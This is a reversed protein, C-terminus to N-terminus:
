GWTVSSIMENPPPPHPSTIFLSLLSLIPTINIVNALVMCSFSCVGSFGAQRPYLGDSLCCHMLLEKKEGLQQLWMPSFFFSFLDCNNWIKKYGWNQQISNQHEKWTERQVKNRELDPLFWDKFVTKWSQCKNQLEFCFFIMLFFRVYWRLLFFALKESFM